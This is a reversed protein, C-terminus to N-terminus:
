SKRKRNETPQPPIGLASQYIQFWRWAKFKKPRQTKYRDYQSLQIGSKLKSKIPFHKLSSACIWSLSLSRDVFTAMWTLNDTKPRLNCHRVQRRGFTIQYYSAESAGPLRCFVVCSDISTENLGLHLKSIGNESTKGYVEYIRNTDYKNVVFVYLPSGTATSEIELNCPVLM